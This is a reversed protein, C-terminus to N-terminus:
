TMTYIKLIPFIIPLYTFNNPFKDLPHTSRVMMFDQIEKKHNRKRVRTVMDDWEKKSASTNEREEEEEKAWRRKLVERDKRRQREKMKKQM